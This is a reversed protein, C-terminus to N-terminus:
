DRNLRLFMLDTTFRDKDGSLKGLPELAFHRHYKKGGGDYNHITVRMSGDFSWHDTQIIIKQTADTVHNMRIMAGASVWFYVGMVEFIGDRKAIFPPQYGHGDDVFLAKNVLRSLDKQDEPEFRYPMATEM